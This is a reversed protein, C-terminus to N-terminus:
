SIVNSFFLNANYLSRMGEGRGASMQCGGLIEQYYQNFLHKSEQEHFPFM